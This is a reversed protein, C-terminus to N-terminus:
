AKHLKTCKSAKKFDYHSDMSTFDQIELSESPSFQDAQLHYHHVSQSKMNQKHLSVSAPHCCLPPKHIEVTLFQAARLLTSLPLTFTATLTRTESTMFSIPTESTTFSIPITPLSRGSLEISTNAM